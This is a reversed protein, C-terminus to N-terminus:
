PRIAMVVVRHGDFVAHERLSWGLREYFRQGDETYLYLRTIGLANAEDVLAKVLVAGIGRGRHEPAVYLSALWPSLLSLTPHDEEVLSVSGILRANDIAILTTPLHRRSTHSQLEDLAAEHSWDPLLRQWERYHWQALTAAYDPHEALYAIHM